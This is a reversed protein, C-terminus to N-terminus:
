QSESINSGKPQTRSALIHITATTVAHDQGLTDRYLVYLLGKHHFGVQLKVRLLIFTTLVLHGLIFCLRNLIGTYFQNFHFSANYNKERSFHM